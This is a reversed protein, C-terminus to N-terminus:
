KPPFKKYINGRILITILIVKPNIYELGIRWEGLRIRYYNEGKKQGEMRSYDLGTSELNKSQPLTITIIERVAEQIHKPTLKLAKHFNNKVIVEM